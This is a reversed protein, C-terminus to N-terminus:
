KGYPLVDLSIPVVWVGQNPKSSSGCVKIIRGDLKYLIRPFLTLGPATGVAWASASKPKAIMGSQCAASVTALLFPRLWV